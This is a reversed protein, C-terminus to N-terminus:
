QGYLHSVNAKIIAHAHPFPPLPLPQERNSPVVGMMVRGESILIGASVASCCAATAGSQCPALASLLTNQDLAMAADVCQELDPLEEQARAYQTCAACMCMLLCALAPTPLRM